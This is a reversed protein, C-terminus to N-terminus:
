LYVGTAVPQGADNAGNWAIEHYGAVQKAEDVLTRVQQGFANYIVIKV